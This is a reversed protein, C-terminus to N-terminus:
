EDPDGQEDRFRESVTTVHHGRGLERRRGADVHDRWDTTAARRTAQWGGRWGCACELRWRHWPWRCGCPCTLESPERM